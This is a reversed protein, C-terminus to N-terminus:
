KHDESICFIEDNEANISYGNVRIAIYDGDETSTVFGRRELFRFPREEINRIFLVGRVGHFANCLDLWMRAARTNREAISEFCQSCCFFCDSM